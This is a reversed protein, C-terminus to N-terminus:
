MALFLLVYVRTNLKLLALICVSCGGLVFGCYILQLRRLCHWVADAFLVRLACATFVM